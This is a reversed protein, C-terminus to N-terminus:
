DKGPAYEALKLVSVGDNAVIARAPTVAARPETWTAKSVLKSSVLVMNM